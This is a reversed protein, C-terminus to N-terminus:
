RLVAVVSRATGPCVLPLMDYIRALLSAWRSSTRSGPTGGSFGAVPQTDLQESPANQAAGQERRLTTVQHRLKANPALVGHYRHRHIRPPHILLALRGLFELPTLSLATTGDPAPHSASSLPMGFQALFQTSVWRRQGVCGVCFDLM